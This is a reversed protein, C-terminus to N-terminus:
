LQSIRSVSWNSYDIANLKARLKLFEPFRKEFTAATYDPAGDRLPPKEFTRWEKFLETLQQYDTSQSNQAQLGPTLLLSFVVLNLLKM